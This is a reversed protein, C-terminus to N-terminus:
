SACCYLLDTQIEVMGFVLSCLFLKLVKHLAKAHALYCAQYDAADVLWDLFLMAGRWYKAWTGAPMLAIDRIMAPVAEAWGPNMAQLCVVQRHEMCQSSFM